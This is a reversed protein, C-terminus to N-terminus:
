TRGSTPSVDGALGREAFFQMRYGAFWTWVDDPNGQLYNSINEQFTEHEITNIPVDADPNADTFAGVM